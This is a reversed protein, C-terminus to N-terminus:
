RSWLKRRPKRATIVFQYGGLYGLEPSWFFSLSADVFGADRLTDLFDWGFHYFCLAGDSSVPDGHIEPPLLHEITGDPHVIARTITTPSDLAFPVTILLMGSPKLCRFFEALARRYDPIHELVDFSGIKHFTRDPFTLQTADEHRIGNENTAGPKTGDRLYESGITNQRRELVIKFLASTSETLYIQDRKRRGATLFGVAARM